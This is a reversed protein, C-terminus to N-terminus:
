REEEREWPPAVDPDVLREGRDLAAITQVEDADLEFDFVDFNEELHERSAAKPIAAVREQQLLWRLAVQAASKGHDAGIGGLTKDDTARGHALPSYAVLAMGHDRVTELLRRQSLFPHYEVQDCVIPAARRARELWSPPFNSVGVHRVRGRERLAMMAELTEELPTEESPWHILLLDVYDTALRQLSEDAAALVREHSLEDVWLKTTLFVDARDVGGDRLGRGVDAENEYMRATDVHRYGVALADAVRARCREGTIQWTGFGLAPIRAGGTTEITKM